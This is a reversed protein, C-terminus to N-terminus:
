GSVTEPEPAEVPDAGPLPHSRELAAGEVDVNPLIRDLWRPLWWVARGALHMLAPVLLVRVVFADFLVGVALGLGLPRVLTLESFVFGGFVSVMIIAAATVVSRGNRLGATIAARAPVGHVYAERMGSVLFLQYDMALGFLVGMLIIPAFDLVPGPDHVGFVASLWGWQYVAVIVGFAAFLSLVYGATAILPVLLSRFVVIMILLSLGVVVILYGPLAGSLKDAVDINASATGAVGLTIGGPLAPLARLRTVLDSTSVSSPGDTPIVQFAFFDKSDAVGAPAVAVVDRQASLAQAIEVQTALVDDATVPKATQATVLLPGNVGAGFEDAVATFTRYATSNTDQVSGDPLGLRMSLAPAAIVLLAAVALGATLVARWTPMPKPAVETREHAGAAARARRTLLRPGILRLLGAPLTIAVLVAVAVCVAGVDGMTGLFPIGTVNLALLAVIVTSGAFVVAGGATGNALGISEHLELGARLQRRHRNIIFLSYDIGLALGLMLGLLPTVSAMDVVGSFAMAGAVGVGVGILSSVLPLVTALLTRLMVLLVLAAAVLGTVEGPGMLGATSQAIESSYDVRVGHISAADLEHAVTDKAEQPLSYLDDTFLVAGTATSGDASVTRIKSALDLLKRGLELPKSKTALDAAAADLQSAQSDLQAQQQDLQALAAPNGAAAAKAATLQQQAGALQQRGAAIRATGDDVQQQGDTLQKRQDALQQQTAFPDVVDRVRAKGKLGALLDSIGKRQEATFSTGDDTRFVVTGGAGALTPLKDALKATVAATQTGPISFTSALTGGATLFAVAATALALLWFGLVRLPNRAAFRGLRYLLQAM